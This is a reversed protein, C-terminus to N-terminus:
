KAIGVACRTAKCHPLHAEAEHRSGLDQVKTPPVPDESAAGKPRRRAIAEELKEECRRSAELEAEAERVEAQLSEARLRPRETVQQKHAQEEARSLRRRAADLENRLKREARLREERVTQVQSSLERNQEQLVGVQIRAAEDM